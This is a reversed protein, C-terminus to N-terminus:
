EDFVIGVDALIALFDVLYLCVVDRRRDGKKVLAPIGGAPCHTCREQPSPM